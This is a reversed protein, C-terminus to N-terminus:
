AAPLLAACRRLRALWWDRRDPAAAWRDLLAPSPAARSDRPANRSMYQVVACSSVCWALLPHLRRGPSKSALPVIEPSAASARPHKSSSM